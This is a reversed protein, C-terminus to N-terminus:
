EDSSEMKYFVSGVGGRYPVLVTEVPWAAPIGSLSWADELNAKWPVPEWVSSLLNTTQLVRFHSYADVVPEFTFESVGSSADYTVVEDIRLGKSRYDTGAQVEQWTAFGDGDHDELDEAPSNTLGEAVMWATSTGRATATASICLSPDGLLSMHQMEGSKTGGVAAFAGCWADGLRLAGAAIQDRLGCSLAFADGPQLYGAASIVASFGSSPNRVGSESIGQSQTKMDLLTWRGVRCGMLVAVPAFTWTGAQFTSAQIFWNGSSGGVGLLTDSSHGFYYLFGAGASLEHKAGTPPNDYTNDWMVNMSYSPAKPYFEKATWGGAVYGSATQAVLNSFDPDDANLQKCAAFVAKSKWQTVREYRITKTVLSTLEVANTALFRGVAVEPVADGTADGLVSDNPLMLAAPANAEIQPFLYLPFLAPFLGRKELPFAELKYDSGGYGAFLLYRLTQEPGSTVGARCFRRFADPHVLGDTFANYLEEADIVRTRLGQASRLAALPQVAADFGSIWRRSPIVIALQPMEAPDSWDTDRVGSVSPAYCGEPAAFVAYREAVGGCLFAVSWAGNTGQWVPADLV